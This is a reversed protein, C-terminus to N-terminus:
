WVIVSICFEHSFYNINELNVIVRFLILFFFSPALKNIVHFRTKTSFEILWKVLDCDTRFAHSRNAFWLPFSNIVDSLVWRKKRFFKIGFMYIHNRIQSAVIIPILQFFLFDLTLRTALSQSNFQMNLVNKGNDKM